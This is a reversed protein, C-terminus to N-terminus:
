GVPVGLQCNRASNDRSKGSLYSSDAATLGQSGGQPGCTRKRRTCVNTRSPLGNTLSQLEARRAMDAETHYGSGGAPAVAPRVGRRENDLTFRMDIWWPEAVHEGISRDVIDPPLSIPDTM